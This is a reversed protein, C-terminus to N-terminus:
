EREKGDKEVCKWGSLECVSPEANRQPNEASEANFNGDGTDETCREPGRPNFYKM